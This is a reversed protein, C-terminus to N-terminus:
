DQAGSGGFPGHRQRSAGRDHMVEGGFARVADVIRRDDTAVMVRDLVRAKSASEYVHQIMPKGGIEALPKGAFPDFWLAGSYDGRREHNM